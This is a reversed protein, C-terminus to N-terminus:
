QKWTDRHKGEHWMTVTTDPQKLLSRWHEGQRGGSGESFMIQCVSADKRLFTTWRKVKLVFCVQTPTLDGLPFRTVRNGRSVSEKEHLQFRSSTSLKRHGQYLSVKFYCLNSNRDAMIKHFRNVGVSISNDLSFHHLKISLIFLVSNNVAKHLKNSHDSIGAITWHDYQVILFWRKNIGRRINLAPRMKIEEDETSTERESSSYIKDEPSRSRTRSLRSSGDSGFKYHSSMRPHKPEASDYGISRGNSISKHAISCSMVRISNLLKRLEKDRESGDAFVIGTGGDLITQSRQLLQRQNQFQQSTFERM